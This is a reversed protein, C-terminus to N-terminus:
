SIIPCSSSSSLSDMKFLYCVRSSGQNQFEKSILGIGATWKYGPYCPTMSLFISESGPLRPKFFGAEKEGVETEEDTFYSRRGLSHHHSFSNTYPFHTPQLRPRLVLYIFLVQGRTPESTHVFLLKGDSV